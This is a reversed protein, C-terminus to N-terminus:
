EFMFCGNVLFIWMIDSVYGCYEVGVDILVLDGDCSCVINDCYYLICVNVGVGVISGYM